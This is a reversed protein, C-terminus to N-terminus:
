ILKPIEPYFLYNAWAMMESAHQLSVRYVPGFGGEGLKNNISFHKTANAITALEFLPLELDQEHEENGQDTDRSNETIESITSM